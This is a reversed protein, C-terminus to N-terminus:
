YHIINAVMVDWFCVLYWFVTAVFLGGGLINGLCAPIMSHWIYFGVSIDPSGYFIANPIFYM